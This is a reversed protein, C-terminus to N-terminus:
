RTMRIMTRNPMPGGDSDRPSTDGDQDDEYWWTSSLTSEVCSDYDAHLREVYAGDLDPRQMALHLVCALAHMAEIADVSIIDEEQIGKANLARLVRHQWAANIVEELDVDTRARLTHVIPYAQTLRTPTLVSVPLRRVVRFAQAWEYVISAITAKWQVRGEGATETDTSTLSLTVAHGAVTDSVALAMPLPEALKLAAGSKRATVDLVEGSATTILYRRGKVFAGASVSVAVDTDGEDAAVSVTAALTDVSGASYTSPMSVSPTGVRYTVASPQALVFPGGTSVRPYALVTASQGIM